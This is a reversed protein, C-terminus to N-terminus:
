GAKTRFVITLVEGSATCDLFEHGATECFSRFDAPANSDTVLVEIRTGPALGRIARNARLVPLPCRLGKLDLTTGTDDDTM